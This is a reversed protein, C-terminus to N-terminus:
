NGAFETEGRLTARGPLLTTAPPDKAVIVGEGRFFGNGPGKFHLGGGLTEMAGPCNNQELM